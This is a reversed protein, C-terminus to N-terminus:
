QSEGTTATQQEKQEQKERIKTWKEKLKRYQDSFGDKVIERKTKVVFEKGPEYGTSTPWFLYGLFIAVVGVVAVIVWKGWIWWDGFLGGTSIGAEELADKTENLLTEIDNFLEYASKYDGTDRYELAMEFLEKLENFKSEAFTTNKGRDRSSNIINELDSIESEYELLSVNINERMGPGPTVELTFDKTITDLSSSAKFECAHDQVEADDPILFMVYFSYLQEPELEKRNILVDYWSSGIGTVSLTVTQWETDNLNKVIVSETKNKGQEISVISPYTNIELYISEEDEDEDEGEGEGEGEGEAGGSTTTTTTTTTDVDDVTITIDTINGFSADSALLDPECYKDSSINGGLSTIKWSFECVEGESLALTITDSGASFSGCTGGTTRIEQVQINCYDETSTDNQLELTGTAELPGYNVATANFYISAGNENVTPTISTNAILRIGTNNIILTQNTRTGSYSPNKQYNATVSTNYHGGVSHVPITFNVSYYNTTTSYIPNTGNSLNLSSITHDSYNMSTLSVSFNSTNLATGAETETGNIYYIKFKATVNEGHTGNAIRSNDTATISLDQLDLLSTLNLRLTLNFTEYPHSSFAMTTNTANFLIWGEYIGPPM